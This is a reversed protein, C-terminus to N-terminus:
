TQSRINASITRLADLRSRMSRLKEQAVEHRAESILRTRLQHETDINARSEKDGETVRGGPGSGGSMSATALRAQAYAVKHTVEAEAAAVAYEALEYVAEEMEDSIRRIEQEVGAQTLVASNM